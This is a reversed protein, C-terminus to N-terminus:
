RCDSLRFFRFSFTFQLKYLKLLNEFANNEYELNVLRKQEEALKKQTEAKVQEVTQPVLWSLATEYKILLEYPSLIQM